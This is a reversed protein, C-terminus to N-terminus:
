RVSLPRRCRYRTVPISNTGFCVRTNNPVYRTPYQHRVSGRRYPLRGRYVIREGLQRTGAVLGHRVQRLTQCRYRTRVSGERLARCVTNLGYLFGQFSVRRFRAPSKPLSNISCIAGTFSQDTGRPLLDKDNKYLFSVAAAVRSADNRM